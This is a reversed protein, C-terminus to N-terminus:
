PTGFDGSDLLKTTLKPYTPSIDNYTINPFDVRALEFTVRTLHESNGLIYPEERFAPLDSCDMYKYQCFCSEGLFNTNSKLFDTQVDWSSGSILSKYVFADPYVVTLTSSIAPIDHQFNWPVLMYLRDKM